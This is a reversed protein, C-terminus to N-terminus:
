PFMFQLWTKVYADLGDYFCTETGLDLNVWAIFTSLILSAQSELTFFIHQNVRIINAYFILGNITGTSVTLNLWMLFGVLLVGAFLVRPFLIVILISSCEKCKSTGFVQSLNEQCAGCLIGSRNFACQDDPSELHFSLKEDALQKCYDYPCFDHIIVKHNEVTHKDPVSLWLQKTKTIYYNDMDCFVDRHEKIKPSCLCSLTNEDFVFGLLCNNLEVKTVLDAFLM